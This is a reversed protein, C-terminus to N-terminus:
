RHDRRNGQDARRGGHRNPTSMDSIVGVARTIEDIAGLSKRRGPCQVAGSGSQSESKVAVAQLHTAVNRDDVPDTTSQTRKLVRVEDAVVAFGRGQDGARAAEIAANLALLNTQEAIGQITALM